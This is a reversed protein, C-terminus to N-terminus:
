CCNIITVVKKLEESYALYYHSEENLCYHFMVKESVRLEQYVEYNEFDEPSMSNPYDEDGIQKPDLLGEQFISKIKLMMYEYMETDTKIGALSYGNILDRTAFSHQYIHVGECSTIMIIASSQSIPGAGVYLVFSDLSTESSFHAFVTDCYEEEIRTHDYDFLIPVPATESTLASDISDTKPTDASENCSFMTFFFLVAAQLFYKMM